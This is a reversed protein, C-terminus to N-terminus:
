KSPGDGEKNEHAGPMRMVSNERFLINNKDRKFTDVERSSLIINCIELTADCYHIVSLDELDPGYPDIMKTGLARLGLVFICQLWVVVGNLVDLSISVEDDWGTAIATDIAFLPLYLASLLALFHIYFFHPPQDTYDYMGDMSARFQLIREHFFSAEISDIHGAKKAQAVDMQCWTTLEKMTGGGEDMLLPEILFMEEPTLLQNDENYHSFFHAKSYPSTTGIGNLGVYGAIQAANFHRILKDALEAPLQTKALGAVDQIRGSCAKCFGYMEHFRTQTQNIFLVLFFSLFTGLISIKTQSWLEVEPRVDESVHASIRIVIYIALILYVFPDSIIDRLCTGKWNFLIKWFPLEARFLIARRLKEIQKMETWTPRKETERGKLHISAGYEFNGENSEEQHNM